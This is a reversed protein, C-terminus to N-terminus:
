KKEFEFIFQRLNEEVNVFDLVQELWLKVRTTYSARSPFRSKVFDIALALSGWESQLKGLVDAQVFAQMSKELRDSLARLEPLMTQFFAVDATGAPWAKGDLRGLNALCASAKTLLFDATIETGATAPMDKLLPGLADVLKAALCAAESTKDGGFHVQLM